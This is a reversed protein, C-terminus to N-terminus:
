GKAFALSIRTWLSEPPNTDLLARLQQPSALPSADTGKGLRAWRLTERAVRLNARGAAAKAESRSLGGQAGREKLIDRASNAHDEPSFIHDYKSPAPLPVPVTRLMAVLALIDWHPRFWEGALRHEKFREHLAGEEYAGGNMTALCVLPESHATQLSSLREQLDNTIGIKIDGGSARQIFYIV